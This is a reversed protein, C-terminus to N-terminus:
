LSYCGEGILIPEPTDNFPDKIEDINPIISQEGYQAFLDKM